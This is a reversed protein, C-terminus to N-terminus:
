ALGMLRLDEASCSVRNTYHGIGYDSPTLGEASVGQWPKAEAKEKAALAAHRRLVEEAQAFVGRAERMGFSGPPAGAFAEALQIFRPFNTAVRRGALHHVQIDSRSGDPSPTLVVANTFYNAVAKLPTDEPVKRDPELLHDMGLESLSTQVIPGTPRWKREDEADAAPTVVSSFPIATYM